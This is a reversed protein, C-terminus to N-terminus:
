VRGIPGSVDDVTEEEAMIEFRGAESGQPAISARWPRSEV